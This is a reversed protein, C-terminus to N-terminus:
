KVQKHKLAQGSEGARGGLIGGPAPLATKTEAAEGPVSCHQCLVPVMNTSHTSASNKREGESPLVRLELATTRNAVGIRFEHFSQAQGQSPPTPSVTRILVSGTM